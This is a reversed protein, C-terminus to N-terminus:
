MSTCNYLIGLSRCMNSELASRNQGLRKEGLTLSTPVLFGILMTLMACPSLAITLLKEHVMGAFEKETPNAIMGQIRRAEKAREIDHCTYGEFNGRVTNVLMMGINSNEDSVDHYHLGQDSPKFEVIGEETHVTFVWGRNHSDYTVRHRQKAKNLLLVNAIGHPSHKVMVSGFEGKLISSTSRANCHIISPNKARRINSLLAPNSVQNVTSQSNLLVWNKNVGGGEKKQVFINEGHDPDEKSADQNEKITALMQDQKEEKKPCEWAIHGQKGCKYYTLRSKWSNDGRDSQAFIAGEESTAGAEQRHKNWGAPPQYANLIRLVAESSEPYKSTGTVFNEKM